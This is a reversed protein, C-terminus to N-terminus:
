SQEAMALGYGHLGQEAAMAPSIIVVPCRAHSLCARIVPGVPRDVILPDPQTVPSQAGAGLVLLEADASASALVREAPGEALDVVVLVGAPDGLVAHLIASLEATLRDATQELSPIEHQVSPTGAYPARAPHPQWAQMVRLTAERRRAEGAAWALAALSAGSGGVGVLIVPRQRVGDV